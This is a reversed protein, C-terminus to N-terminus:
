GYTKNDRLAPPIDLPGLPAGYDQAHPERGKQGKTKAGIRLGRHTKVAIDPRDHGVGTEAAM